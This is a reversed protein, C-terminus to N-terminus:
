YQRQLRGRSNSRNRAKAARAAINRNSYPNDNRGFEPNDAIDRRTSVNARTYFPDKRKDRPNQLRQGSPGLPKKFQNPKKSYSQVQTTAGSPRIKKYTVRPGVHSILGRKSSLPM